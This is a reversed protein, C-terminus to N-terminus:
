SNRSSGTLLWLKESLDLALDLLDVGGLDVLQEVLADRDDVHALGFLERGAVQRAGLVDRAAIELRADLADHGIAGRLHDEVALGAVARGVGRARQMLVQAVLVDREIVPPM